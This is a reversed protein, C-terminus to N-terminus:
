KEDSVDTFEVEQADEADQKRKKAQEEEKIRQSVPDPEMFTKAIFKFKKLFIKIAPVFRIFIFLLPILGILGYWWKDM